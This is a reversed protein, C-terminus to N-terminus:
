ISNMKRVRAWVTPYARGTIKVIEPVSKGQRSLTEIESAEDPKLKTWKKKVYNRKISSGLILNKIKSEMENSTIKINIGELNIIMM